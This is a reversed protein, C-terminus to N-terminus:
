DKDYLDLGLGFKAAARRFAMSEANSSPDGYSGCDLLEQGSATRTFDGEQAHIILSYTLVIRDGTTQIHTIKGEWGPAYYDLLRAVHYWPIYPIYTIRGSRRDKKELRSIFRQPIPKALDNLIAAIPRRFPQHRAKSQTQDHMTPKDSTSM